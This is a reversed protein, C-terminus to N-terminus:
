VPKRLVIVHGRYRQVMVDARDIGLAAIWTDVIWDGGTNGAWLLLPCAQGKLQASLGPSPTTRGVEVVTLRGQHADPLYYDYIEPPWANVPLSGTDCGPLSGVFTAAEKWQDKKETSKYHIALGLNIAALAAPLFAFIPRWRVGGIEELDGLAAIALVYFPPLVLFLNRATIMPTHLSVGIVISLAVAVYVLPVFYEPRLFLRPRAALTGAIGAMMAVFIYPTGMAFQAFTPFSFTWNNTIWFSGGTKGTLYPLHIAIWPVFLLLAAAGGAAVTALARWQRMGFAYLCLAGFAGAGVALGFYHVYELTLTVAALVAIGGVIPQRDRIRCAIAVALCTALTALLLLLTYGRAEQAYWIVGTAVAFWCALALPRRVIPTWQQVLLVAIPCGAAIVASFLRLALEDDGFLRRWEHLLVYYLPPHVDPLVWKEMMARLSIDPETVAATWLEDLWFNQADLGHFQMFIGVVGCAVLLLAPLRTTLDHRAEVALQTM